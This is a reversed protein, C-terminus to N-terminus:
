IMGQVKKDTGEESEFEYGKFILQQLRCVYM